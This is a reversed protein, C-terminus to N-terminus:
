GDCPIMAKRSIMGVGSSKPASRLNMFVTVALSLDNFSLQVPNPVTVFQVYWPLVFSEHSLLRGISLLM